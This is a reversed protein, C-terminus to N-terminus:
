LATTCPNFWVYISPVRWIRPRFAVLMVSGCGSLIIINVSLRAGVGVPYESPPFRTDSSNRCADLVEPDIEEPVGVDLDAKRTDSAEM